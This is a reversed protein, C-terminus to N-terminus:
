VRPSKPKIPAFPKIKYYFQFKKGRHFGHKRMFKIMPHNDEQVLAWVWDCHRRDLQRYLEQYLAQGIGQHRYQKKVAVDILYSEKLHPNFVALLYGAFHNDVKAVLHIDRRSKIFSKLQSPQYYVPGDNSVRLEKTHLGLTVVSRIHAPTINSVSVTSMPRNYWM